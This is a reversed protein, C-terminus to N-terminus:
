HLARGCGRLSYERWAVEVRGSFSEGSMSDRCSEGVITIVIREAGNKSSYRTSRRSSDSVPESYPFRQRIADYGISLLFGQERHIDLTWPPEQGVARYSVGRLKAAEWVAARPDNRCDRYANGKVTIQANQGAELDPPRDPLYFVEAGIFAGSGSDFRMSQSAQRSFLHGRDGSLIVVIASDEGDCRYSYTTAAASEAPPAPCAGERWGAVMGDACAGCGNSYTERSGDVLEACVPRYEMTCAQPRPETCKRLASASTSNQGPAACGGLLQIVAIPWLLKMKM